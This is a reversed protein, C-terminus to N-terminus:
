KVPKIELIRPDDEAIQYAPNLMHTFIGDCLSCELADNLFVLVYTKQSDWAKVPTDEDTLWFVNDGGAAVQDAKNCLRYGDSDIRRCMRGNHQFLSGIKVDKFKCDLM